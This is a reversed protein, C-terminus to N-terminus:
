VEITSNKPKETKVMELKPPVTAKPPKTEAVKNNAISDFKSNNGESKSENSLLIAFLVTSFSGEICIIASSFSLSKYKSLYSYM